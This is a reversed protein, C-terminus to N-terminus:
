RPRLRVVNLIAHEVSQLLATLIHAKLVEGAEECLVVKSRLKRLPDM